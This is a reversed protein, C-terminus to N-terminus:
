TEGTFLKREAERRRVLGPLVVGGARNWKPFEAAAGSYDGANLKALLTSIRLNDPGLNYVWSVLSDYQNQTLPVTVMDNIYGEYEPMEEALWADAQEQTCTDGKRVDKTRGWGITWVGVSDQYAKFECGEFAKILELGADSTKM